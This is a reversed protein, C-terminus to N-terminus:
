RAIIVLVAEALLRDGLAISGSFIFADGASDSEACAVIALKEGAPLTDVLFRADRVRVLRGDRVGDGRGKLGIYAACLQAIVEISWAVPVGAEPGTDSVRGPEVSHERLMVEGRIADGTVSTVRDIRIAPAAHPLLDAPLPYSKLADCM